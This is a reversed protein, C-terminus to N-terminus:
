QLGMHAGKMINVRYGPIFKNDGLLIEALSQTGPPLSNDIACNCSNILLPVNTKRYKRLDGPIVLQSPHSIAAVQIIDDFALDLVSRALDYFICPHICPFNRIPEGGFAYGTAAIATIGYQRLEAVVKDVISRTRDGRAVNLMGSNARYVKQEFGNAAAPDDNFLDPM